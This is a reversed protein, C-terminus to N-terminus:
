QESQYQVGLSPGVMFGVGNSISAGAIPKNGTEAYEWMEELVDDYANQQSDGGEEYFQITEELNERSPDTRHEVLDIIVETKGNEDRIAIDGGWFAGAPVYRESPNERADNYAKLYEWGSGISEGTEEWGADDEGGNELASKVESLNADFSLHLGGGFNGGEISNELGMLDIALFEMNSGYAYRKAEQPAREVNGFDTYSVDKGAAIGPQNELRAIIEEASSNGANKEGGPGEATATEFGDTATETEDPTKSGESGSGETPAEGDQSSGSGGRACGALGATIAAGANKLLERRSRNPSEIM